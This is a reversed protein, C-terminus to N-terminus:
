SGEFPGAGATSSMDPQEELFRDGSNRRPSQTREDQGFSHLTVGANAKAGIIAEKRILVRQGVATESVQDCKWKLLQRSLHAVTKEHIVVDLEVSFLMKGIGFRVPSVASLIAEPLLLVAIKNQPKKCM